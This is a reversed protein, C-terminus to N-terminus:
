FTLKQKTFYFFIVYNFITIIFFALFINIFPNHTGRFLLSFYVEYFLVEWLQDRDRHINYAIKIGFAFIIIAKGLLNLTDM